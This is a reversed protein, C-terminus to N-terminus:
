QQNTPEPYLPSAHPMALQIAADLEARVLLADEILERLADPSAKQIRPRRLMRALVRYAADAPPEGYATGIRAM